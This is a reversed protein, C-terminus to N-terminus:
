NGKIGTVKSINHIIKEKKNDDTDMVEIVLKEHIDSM